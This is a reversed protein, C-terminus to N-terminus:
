HFVPASPPARQSSPTNAGPDPQAIHLLWSALVICIFAASCLRALWTWFNM